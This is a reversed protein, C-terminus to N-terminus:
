VCGRIHVGDPRVFSVETGPPFEETIDPAQSANFRSSYLGVFLSRDYKLNFVSATHGAEDLRYTASAYVLQTHPCYFEMGDSDSSLGVAIGQMTHVEM